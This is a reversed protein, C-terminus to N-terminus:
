LVSLGPPRSSMTSIIGCKNLREGIDQARELAKKRTSEIRDGINGIVRLPPAHGYHATLDEVFRKFLAAGEPTLNKTSDNAFDLQVPRLLPAAARMEDDPRPEDPGAPQMPVAWQTRAMGGVAPTALHRPDEECEIVGVRFGREVLEHAATLGTIGAGFIWVTGQM